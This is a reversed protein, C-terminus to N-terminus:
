IESVVNIQAPTHCKSRVDTAAWRYEQKPNADSNRDAITKVRTQGLWWHPSTQINQAGTPLIQVSTNHYNNHM